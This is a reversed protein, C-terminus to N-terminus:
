RCRPPRAEFEREVFRPLGGHEELRESFSPWHEAHNPLPGDRRPPFGLEPERIIVDDLHGREELAVSSVVCGSPGVRDVGNLSVSLEHDAFRHARGHDHEDVVPTLAVARATIAAVSRAM